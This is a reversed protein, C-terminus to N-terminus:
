NFIMGERKFSASGKDEDVDELPIRREFRGYYRPTVRALTRSSAM